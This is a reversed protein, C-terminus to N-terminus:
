PIFILFIFFLIGLGIFSYSLIKTMKRFSKEDKPKPHIFKGSKEYSMKPMYNGMVLFLIGLIFCVSKGVYVSSGLSVEIMIVYILVTLVPIIWEVIKIVKPKDSEKLPKVCNSITFIVAQVIAMILPMGFLAFNKSAYRDPENQINFHIPMQEPLKRYCIMGVIMPLLCVMVTIVLKKRIKKEM